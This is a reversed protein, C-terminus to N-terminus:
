YESSTVLMPGALEKLPSTISRLRLVKWSVVSGCPFSPWHKLSSVSSVLTNLAQQCVLIDLNFVPPVDSHCPIWKFSTLYALWDGQFHLQPERTHIPFLEPKYNKRYICEGVFCVFLFLLRFSFPDATLVMAKDNCGSEKLMWRTYIDCNELSDSKYVNQREQWRHMQWKWCVCCKAIWNITRM